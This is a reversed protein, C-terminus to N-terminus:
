LREEIHGDVDIAPRDALVLSCRVDFGRALAASRVAAACLTLADGLRARGMGAVAGLAIDVARRGPAAGAAVFPLGAAACLDAVVGVFEGLVAAFHVDDRDVVLGSDGDVQLALRLVVAGAESPLAAAAADDVADVAVAAALPRPLHRSTLTASRRRLAPMGLSAPLRDASAPAFIVVPDAHGPHRAIWQVVEM